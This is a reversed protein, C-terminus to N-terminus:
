ISCVLLTLGRFPRRPPSGRRASWNSALAGNPAVSATMCTLPKVRVISALSSRAPSAVACLSVLLAIATPRILIVSAPRRHSSSAALDSSRPGFRNLSKQLAYASDAPRGAPRQIAVICLSARVAQLDAGISLQPKRGNVKTSATRSKSAVAFYKWSARPKSTFHVGAVPTKQGAALDVVHDAATEIDGRRTFNCVMAVKRIKVHFVDVHHM